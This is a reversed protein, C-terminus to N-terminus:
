LFTYPINEKYKKLIVKLFCTKDLVSAYPLFPFPYSSFIPLIKKVAYSKLKKGSSISFCVLVVM